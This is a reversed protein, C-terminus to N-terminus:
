PQCLYLHPPWATVTLVTGAAAHGSMTPVLVSTTAMSHCYTCHWCCCPRVHNACTCIHYGHQSLLYLALLLMAQCPQCLYLHPPWATVTLVTGAAAHGSMTPVLVSTTAM